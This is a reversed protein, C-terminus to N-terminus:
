KIEILNTYFGLFNEISGFARSPSTHDSICQQLIGDLSGVIFRSYDVPSIEKRFQGELIGDILIRSVSEKYNAYIERIEEHFKSEKYLFELLLKSPVICLNMDEGSKNYVFTLFGKMRDSPSLEKDDCITKIVSIYELEIYKLVELLIDDKNKFHWYLAAKTINLEQSLNSLTFNSFGSRSIQKISVKIIDEKNIQFGARRAM